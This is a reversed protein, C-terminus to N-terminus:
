AGRAFFSDLAEALEAPRDEPVNHGCEAIEISTVNEAVVHMDRATLDKVGNAAGVALVPMTLKVKASERNQPADIGLVTRYYSFAARMAGIESYSRVYEDLDDQRVSPLVTNRRTFWTIFDREHGAVLAEPLDDVMNFGFHFSGGTVPNMINEAGIGPLPIDVLVLREVSDRHNAAYPYAVWGGLDHGVLNVTVFGLQQALQYIDEAVTKKDYGTTPRSSKGLGRMDPAVVTYRGALAAMVRRWVRWTRLNGHLLIVPPGHGGMVYHIRTGNVDAARHRFNRGFAEEDILAGVYSRM